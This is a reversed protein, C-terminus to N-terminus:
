QVLLAWEMEEVAHEGTGCEEHWHGLLGCMYCYIPLKEFKVQYFKTEGYKTFSVFRTLNKTVDLKVRVPSSSGLLAVLSFSRFIKCM